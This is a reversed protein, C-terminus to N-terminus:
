HTPLRSSPLEEVAVHVGPSLKNFYVISPANSRAAVIDPRGDGNLDGIALGYVAGRSDGFRVAAFTRGDGSNLLVLVSGSRTWWQGGGIGLVLDVSGDRDLDGAEIAYITDADAWIRVADSFRGEGTNFYVSAGGEREDALVVDPRGDRNLDTVTVARATTTAAGLRRREKMSGRGDNIFVYTQCNNDCPVILDPFGDGNLDAAEIRTSSETSLPMCNAFRGGGDNFCIYNAHAGSSGSRNAVVLDVHGDQNVDASTVNRTAWEKVGFTGDAAYQGHGDNLYIRKEDPSDNGVVVDLDGDHDIDALAASYSRDAEGLARTVFHGSGDNVLVVNVLPWHRGKAVVLDEDGDRDVDGIAANAAIELDIFPSVTAFTLLIVAAFPLLALAAVHRRNRRILWPTLLNSVIGVAIIWGPAVAYLLGFLASTPAALL